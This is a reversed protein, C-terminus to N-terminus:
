LPHAHLRTVAAVRTGGVVRVAATFASPVALVAVVAALVAAAAAAPSAVSTAAAVAPSAISERHLRVCRIEVVAAPARVAAIVAATGVRAAAFFFFFSFYLLFDPTCRCFAATTLRCCAAAVARSPAPCPAPGELVKVTGSASPPSLPPKGAYAPNLQRNIRGSRLLREEVQADVQAQGKRLTRGRTGEGM